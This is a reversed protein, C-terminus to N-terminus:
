GWQLAMTHLRIISRHARAITRADTRILALAVTSPQSNVTRDSMAETECGVMWINAGTLALADVVVFTLAITSESSVLALSRWSRSRLKPPTGIANSYIMMFQEDPVKITALSHNGM